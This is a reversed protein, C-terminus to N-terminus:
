NIDAMSRSTLTRKIEALIAAKESRVRVKRMEGPYLDFFNDEFKHAIGPLDIQVAHHFSRSHLGLQFERQAVREVTISIPTRPFEIFRPATLFVTDESIAGDDTELWIRLYLNRAGYTKMNKSLDLTKQRHSQGYGLFVRKEGAGLQRGDLHCLTWRLLGNTKGPADCVTYLHVERISSRWVNGIGMWEDGPVHASVLIPAFFRKAAFHLAKWRGGFELSSWSFAPWCDNLQWFLAGMTRPMSRRFHEVAVKMCYAQNIQSLYSLSPYDVASRYRGSIYEKIILNGARNKQHNEMADGFGNWEEPPCFTAAIEPSSFSQMGFESCFRFGKKEYSKVPHRAHWVDWFHCDGARENNPGREYGEPNHPSSPWYSIEGDYRAVAEPLIGYFIKEYAEKREKTKLIERPIQEIENNGCWLALCARNALRKVQHEAEAKVLALFEPRGPYIACAFMFDQWVLLGKEDCLDYFDEMEYIGGGWVRLMNMNAQAASTLLDTYQARSVEATFGHAPIWNAGKAFIPRGNVVFQFSEGFDDRHRDLSITRLGIRANWCDLVQGEHVLELQVDYLPQDGQGNPWWLKPNAIEFEGKSIEAVVEGDQCVVGRIAGLERALQAQISGTVRGAEHQQRVRVSAFRNEQWAELRIPKYVGGATFRPAWDWGFSYQAKRIQCRGGVLDNLEAFDGRRRRARIYSIPSGFRIELVNRGERIAQKVDFRYELFMNETSGLPHGNLRIEAITDLGEAVLEIHEYACFQSETVFRCRYEWEREEIWQLGKENSGWFPNSIRQHRFLDTYICGPVRAKLWHRSKPELFAWSSTM